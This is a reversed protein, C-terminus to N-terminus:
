PDTINSYAYCAGDVTAIQFWWHGMDFVNVDFYGAEAPIDFVSYPLNDESPGYILIQKEHPDTSPYWSFRVTDDDIREGGIAIASKLPMTCTAYCVQGDPCAPTVPDSYTERKPEETPTPTPEPEQQECTDKCVWTRECVELTKLDGCSDEWHCGYEEGCFGTFNEYCIDDAPKEQCAECSWEKQECIEPEPTPTPTPEPQSVECDNEWIEQGDKDWNKGDYTHKEKDAYKWHGLVKMKCPKKSDWSTYDWWDKPCEYYDFPPIIDGEHGDHGSVDGDKDPYEEVYPNSESATAHCVKVKDDKAFVYTRLVWLGLLVIVIWFLWKKWNM